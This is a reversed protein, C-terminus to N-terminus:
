TRCTNITLQPGIVFLCMMYSKNRTSKVTLRLSDCHVDKGGLEAEAVVVPLISPSAEIQKEPGGKVVVVAVKSSM